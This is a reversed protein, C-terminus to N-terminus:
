LSLCHVPATVLPVLNASGTNSASSLTCNIVSAPDPKAAAPGASAPLALAAVAATALAAVTVCRTLASM